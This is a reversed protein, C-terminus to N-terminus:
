RMIMGKPDHKKNGPEWNKALAIMGEITKDQAQGKGGAAAIATNASGMSGSSNRRSLTAPGRAKGGNAQPADAPKPTPAAAKGAASASPATKKMKPSSEGGQGRGVLLGRLVLTLCQVYQASRCPMKSMTNQIM